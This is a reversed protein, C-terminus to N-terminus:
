FFMQSGLRYCSKARVKLFLINRSRDRTKLEREGDHNVWKRENSAEKKKKRNKTGMTRAM